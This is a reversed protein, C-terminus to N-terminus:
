GAKSSRRSGKSFLFFLAAVVIPQLYILISYHNIAPHRETADQDLGFDDVLLMALTILVCLVVYLYSLLLLVLRQGRKLTVTDLDRSFYTGVLAGLTPGVAHYLNRAPVHIDAFTLGAYHSAAAGALLAYCVGVGVIWSVLLHVRLDDTKM